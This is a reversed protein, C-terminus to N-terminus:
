VLLPVNVAFLPVTYADLETGCVNEPVIVPVVPANLLRVIKFLEPVFGSVFGAIIKAFLADVVAVKVAVKADVVIRKGALAVEVNTFKVSFPCAAFERTQSREEVAPM